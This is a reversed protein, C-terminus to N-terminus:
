LGSCLCPFKCYTSRLEKLARLLGVLAVDGGVLEKNGGNSWDLSLPSMGITSAKFLHALVLVSNKEMAECDRNPTKSSLHVDVQM